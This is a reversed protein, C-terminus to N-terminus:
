ELPRQLLNEVIRTLRDTIQMQRDTAEAQRDLREAMRDLREDQRKGVEVQEQLTVRIETLGETIRGVQEVLIDLKQDSNNSISM